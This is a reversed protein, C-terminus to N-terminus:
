ISKLFQVLDAKQNRTLKMSLSIDYHDVVAELTAKSGDHFYPAHQWLGRLPTTRYGKTVSRAAYGSETRTDTAAHLKGENNDTGSTGVHCTACSRNFIALGRDAATKNVSGAPPPPAALSHQYARLAGLHQAVMDPTKSVSIGLRPDSFSGHGGMETVAVYANWYSIPGEATYTANKVQALGYAPPIVVAGSKGDHNYRPDFKGPGWSNYVAKQADTLKPSLAVIAGPNLDHNAWGDKRRGIGAM